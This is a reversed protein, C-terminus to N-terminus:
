FMAPSVRGTGKNDGYNFSEGDPAVMHLVFAATQLFGEQSSLGFDTGFSKQLADILMVNYTTGFGWYSYGEPYAGQPAYNKMPIRVSELSRELVQRALDAVDREDCIALAGYAMGSNCVQNWNNTRTLWDNYRSEFSPSLGKELIAAKLTNKTEESYVDHFWDYGIAVATTMEAVDLFHTPNWDKFACVAKLEKEARDSYQADGTMRYAYGWLLIRRLTERSVELLRRGTVVHEAVPSSLAAHAGSRLLSDTMGWYRDKSVAEKILIEDAQTMLLRPHKAPKGFDTSQGLITTRPSLGSLFLLVIINKLLKNM